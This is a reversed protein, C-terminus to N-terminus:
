EIDISTIPAFKFYVCDDATLEVPLNDKSTEKRGVIKANKLMIQIDLSNKLIYYIKNKITQYYFYWVFNKM